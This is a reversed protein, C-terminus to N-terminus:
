STDGELRSKFLKVDDDDLVCFLQDYDYAGWRDWSDAVLLEGGDVRSYDRWPDLSIRWFDTIEGRDENTIFEVLVSFNFFIEPKYEWFVTGKPM